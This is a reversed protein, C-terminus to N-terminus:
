VTPEHNVPAAVPLGSDDFDRLAHTLRNAAQRLQLSKHNSFGGQNQALHTRSLEPIDGLLRFARFRTPHGALDFEGRLGQDLGDGPLAKTSRAKLHFALVTDLPHAPHVKPQLAFQCDFEVAPLEM